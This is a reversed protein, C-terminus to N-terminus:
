SFGYVFRAGGVEAYEGVVAQAEDLGVLEAAPLAGALPWRM